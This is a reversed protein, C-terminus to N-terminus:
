GAIHKGYAVRRPLQLKKPFGWAWPVIKTKTCGLPVVAIDEQQPVCALEPPPAEEAVAGRVGAIALSWDDRLGAIAVSPAENIKFETGPNSSSAVICFVLPWYDSGLLSVEM